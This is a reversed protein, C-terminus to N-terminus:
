SMLLAGSEVKKVKDLRRIGKAADKLYDWFDDIVGVVQLEAIKKEEFLRTVLQDAFSSSGSVLVRCDLIVTEGILSPLRAIIENAAERSGVLRPLSITESM